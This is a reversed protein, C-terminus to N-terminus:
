FEKNRKQYYMVSFNNNWFGFGRTVFWVQSRKKAKKRNKMKKEVKQNM